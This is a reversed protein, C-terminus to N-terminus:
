SAPMVRLMMGDFYGWSRLFDSWAFARYQGDGPDAVYVQDQDFGYVVVVHEQPVLIFREGEFEAVYRPQVSAMNTMWVIVPRGARLEEELVARNGAAYVAEAHFGFRELLPVLPEAYIGYDDIGGFLGNMDGRFGRHPNPHRPMVEIFTAESVPRGWYATIMSLAAAECSLPLSQKSSPVGALLVSPNEEPIVLEQGAHILDPNALGNARVLTEIAVGFRKAIGSLTDGPQVSYRRSQLREQGSSSGVPILLTQGVLIRNADAIENAAVLDAISVGYRQALGSLTEGPQVRHLLSGVRKPEPIVLTTGAIIRNPNALGNRQALEQVNVGYREALASLTEGPQVTHLTVAGVQGSMMAAAVAVAGALLRRGRVGQAEPRHLRGFQVPPGPDIPAALELWHRRRWRERAIYRDVLSGAM